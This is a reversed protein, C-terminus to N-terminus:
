ASKKRRGAFGVGAIGAGMLWIAAPLPVVQQAGYESYHSLGSGQGAFSDYAITLLGGSTNKIFVADNGIKMVVWLALSDFTLDGGGGAFQQGDFAGGAGAFSTGALTNLRAAENVPNSPTGDYEDAFSPSLAGLGTPDGPSGAGIFAQCAGVAAGNCTFSGAGGNITITNAAAPLAALLVGAALASIASKMNWM